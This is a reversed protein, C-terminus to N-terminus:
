AFTEARMYASNIVCDDGATGLQARLILTGAATVQVWASFEWRQPTGTFTPGGALSLAGSWVSLNEVTPGVFYAGGDAHGITATGGGFGLQVSGAAQNGTYNVAGTLHYKGVGLNLTM